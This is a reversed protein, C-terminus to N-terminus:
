TMSASVARSTSRRNPPSAAHRTVYAELSVCPLRCLSSEKTQRVLRVATEGRLSSSSLRSNTHMRARKVIKMDSCFSESWLNHLSYPAAIRDHLSVEASCFSIKSEGSSSKNRRSDHCVVREMERLQCIDSTPMDALGGFLCVHLTPDSM